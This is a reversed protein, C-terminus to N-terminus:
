ILDPFFLKKLVEHGAKNLHVGDSTYQPLMFGKDDVFHSHADIFHYGQKAAFEKLNANIEKIIQVNFTNQGFLSNEGVPLVNSITIKTIGDKTARACLQAYKKMFDEKNYPFGWAANNIGLAIILEKATMNDFFYPAYKLWDDVTAGGIGALYVEKQTSYFYMMNVISDGIVAIDCNDVQQSKIGIMAHVLPNDAINIKGNTIMEAPNREESTSTKQLEAHATEAFIPMEHTFFWAGLYFVVVLLCCMCLVLPIRVFRM